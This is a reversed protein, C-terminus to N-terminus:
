QELNKLMSVCRNIQSQEIGIENCLHTLFETSKKRLELSIILSSIAIEDSDFKLLRYETLAVMCIHRSHELEFEGMGYEECLCELVRLTSYNLISFNLGVLVLVEAKRLDNNTFSKAAFEVLKDGSLHSKEEFKSAIFICAAAVLQIQRRNVLVQSLYRDLLNTALFSIENKCSSLKCVHIIWMVVIARVEEDIGTQESLYNPDPRHARSHFIVEKIKSRKHM